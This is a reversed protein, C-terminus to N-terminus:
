KERMKEEREHLRVITQRSSSLERSLKEVEAQLRLPAPGDEQPSFKTSPFARDAM